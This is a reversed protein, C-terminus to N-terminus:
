IRVGACPCSLFELFQVSSSGDASSAAAGATGSSSAAGGASRKQALCQALTEARIALADREAKLSALQAELQAM